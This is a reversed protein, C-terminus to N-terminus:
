SAGTGSRRSRTDPQFVEDRFERDLLAAKRARGWRYGGVGGSSPVVRHCPIALAAPNLACARAVARAAGPKGISAALEAYTRTEGRPIATLAAWVRWQFATARIDLPLDLRPMRGRLHSVVQRTFGALTQRDHVLRAAFYETRLAARLKRDCGAMAVACLGQDTAAVLLRGLPSATIAYRIVLGAGGRRYRAPQMGLRRTACRYFGSSSGYGADYLAASVEVGDRLRQKVKTLRCAAAFERPTVGIIRKFNRQLHYRSGGVRAALAELSMHGQARSLYTCARRIRDLWPDDLAM